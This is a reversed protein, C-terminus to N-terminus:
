CEAKPKTMKASMEAHAEELITVVERALHKATSTSTVAKDLVDRACSPCIGPVSEIIDSIHMLGKVAYGAQALVAKAAACEEQQKKLEEDNQPIKVPNDHM